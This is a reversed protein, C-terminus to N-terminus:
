DGASSTVNVTFAAGLYDVGSVRFIDPEAKTVTVIDASDYDVYKSDVNDYVSKPNGRSIFEALSKSAARMNNRAVLVLIELRATDALGGYTNNYDIDQPLSVVAAPVSSINDTNWNYVNLGEIEDLMDSIEQMVAVIDIM